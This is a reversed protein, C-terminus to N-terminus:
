SKKNGNIDVADQMAHLCRELWQESLPNSGMEVLTDLIPRAYLFGDQVLTEIHERLVSPSQINLVWFTLTRVLTETFVNIWSDESQDWAYSLRLMPQYVANLLHQYRSILPIWQPLVDELCVHILEHVYSEARLHSMIVWVCADTEVVDTLLDAQLPNLVTAIQSQSTPFLSWMVANAAEVLHHYGPGNEEVERCIVDQYCSFIDRYHKSSRLYKIQDPLGAAWKATQEDREIPPINRLTTLYSRVFPLLATPSYQDTLIGIATLISARPWYPNVRGDCVYARRFYDLTPQGWDQALIVSTICKARVPNALNYGSATLGLYVDFVSQNYYAGSSM